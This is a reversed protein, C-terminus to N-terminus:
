VRNDPNPENFRVSCKGAHQVTNLSRCGMYTLYFTSDLGADVYKLVVEGKYLEDLFSQYNDVFNGPKRFCFVLEVEREDKRPSNYIVRKGHEMRSKNEIFEKLSVGMILKDRSGDELFIGWQEYADKGNIFLRGKM